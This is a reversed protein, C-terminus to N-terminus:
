KRQQIHMGIELMTQDMSRTRASIGATSVNSFLCLQAATAHQIPGPPRHRSIQAKLCTGLCTHSMVFYLVTTSYYVYTPYARPASTPSCTSRSPSCPNLYNFVFSKHKNSCLFCLLTTILSHNGTPFPPQGTLSSGKLSDSLVLNM